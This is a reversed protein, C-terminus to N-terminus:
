VLQWFGAIYSAVDFCATEAQRSVLLRCSFRLASVPHLQFWWGACHRVSDARADPVTMRLILADAAPMDGLAALQAPKSDTRSRGRCSVAYSSGL